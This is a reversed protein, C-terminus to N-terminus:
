NLNHFLLTVDVTMFKFDVTPVNVSMIRFEDSSITKLKETTIEIIIEEQKQYLQKIQWDIEQIKKLHNALDM